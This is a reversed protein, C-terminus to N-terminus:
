LFLPRTQNFFTYQYSDRLYLNQIKYLIGHSDKKVQGILNRFNKFIPFLLSNLGVGSFQDTNSVTVSNNESLSPTESLHNSSPEPSSTSRLFLIALLFCTVILVIILWIKAKNAKSEKKEIQSHINM